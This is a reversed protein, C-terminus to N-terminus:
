LWPTSVGPRRRHREDRPTGHLLRPSALALARGRTFRYLTQGPLAEIKASGRQQTWPIGRAVHLTRGLAHSHWATRAGPAFRVLGVLM